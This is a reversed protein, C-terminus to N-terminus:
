RVVIDLVKAGLQPEVNYMAKRYLRTGSEFYVQIEPFRRLTFLGVGHSKGDAPVSVSCAVDGVRIRLIPEGLLNRVRLLFRDPPTDVREVFKSVRGSTEIRSERIIGDGCTPEVHYILEDPRADFSVEEQHDSAVMKEYRDNGAVVKLKFDAGTANVVSLTLRDHFQISQAFRTRTRGLDLGITWAPFADELPPSIVKQMLTLCQWLLGVCLVVVVLSEFFPKAQRSLDTRAEVITKWWTAGLSLDAPPGSHNTTDNARTPIGSGPVATFTTAVNLPSSGQRPSISNDVEDSALHANSTTPRPRCFYQRVREAEDATLRSSHTKKETIGIWPLSDLIASSKVELERALDNIRIDSM